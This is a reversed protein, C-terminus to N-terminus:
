PEGARAEIIGLTQRRWVSVRRYTFGLSDALSEGERGPALLWARRHVALMPALSDVTVFAANRADTPTFFLERHVELLRVREGLYFPLGANIRRYEIVPEGAERNEILMRALPRPSGLPGEFRALGAALVVWGALVVLAVLAPRAWLMAMAAIAWLALGVYALAPLAVADAATAGSLSALVRPGFGAGAAVLLGLTLATAGRHGRGARELGMAAFAALAPFCPLVYGPLKSGSCSFFVVPVVVWALLLRSEERARERWTRALGVAVAATWPLAGAALVVVFYGAPGERHHVHTAYRQWLQNGVLYGLVGPVRTAVVLYWPLALCLFLSWSWGPGLLRLPTPARTGAPRLRRAWGAAVLVPLLTPVLVVPGKIFFGLGLAAIAVPSPALAWFAAVTPALFPDTALTRGLAFPLAMTALIGITLAPSLALTAFRRRVALAALALTCLTVIAVPLRAGWENEGFLALGLAAAWYAFPPKHLHAIGNLHPVLWDHTALMEHAIAAYRTETPEFLGFMPATALLAAFAVSLAVVPREHWPRIAPSPEDRFEALPASASM